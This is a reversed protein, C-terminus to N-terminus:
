QAKESAALARVTAEIGVEFSTRPEWGLFRKALSIDLISIPVDLDRRALYNVEIKKKFFLNLAAVIDNLSKGIGTGVNMVVPGGRREGAAIIAEILDNIYLYDRIVTGDGFITITEGKLAQTAFTSIAGFNRESKQGPGYANSIRLATCDMGWIDHYFALYKEIALKSVGYACRPRTDHQENAPISAVTGYVTGGSSSFVIRVNRKKASKLLQLTGLINESADRLPDENSQQPLSSWALHYITSVQELQEDWALSNEPFLRWTISEESETSHPRRSLAIVREGRAVLQRLLHRGIFGEAGTVLSTM